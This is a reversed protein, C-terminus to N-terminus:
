LQAGDHDDQADNLRQQGAWPEDDAEDRAEEDCCDHGNDAEREQEIAVPREEDGPREALAVRLVLKDGRLHGPVDPARHRVDFHALPIDVVDDQRWGTDEGNLALPAELAGVLAVQGPCDVLCLSGSALRLQDEQRLSNVVAGIHPGDEDDPAAGPALQRHRLHDVADVHDAAIVEPLPQLLACPAPKGLVM